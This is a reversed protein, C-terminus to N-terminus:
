MVKRALNLSVQSGSSVSHLCESAINIILFYLIENRYNWKLCKDLIVLTHILERKMKKRRHFGKM